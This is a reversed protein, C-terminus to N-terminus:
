CKLSSSHLKRGVGFLWNRHYECNKRQEQITYDYEKLLNRENKLKSHLSRLRMICMGYNYSQPLCDGKWPLDVEYHSGNTQSIQRRLWRGCDNWCTQCRTAKRQETQLISAWYSWIGFSMQETTPITQWDLLFGDWSVELQLPVLSEAFLKELLLTWAIIEVSWSTSQIQVRRV